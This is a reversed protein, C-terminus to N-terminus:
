FSAGLASAEHVIRDASGEQWQASQSVFVRANLLSLVHTHNPM